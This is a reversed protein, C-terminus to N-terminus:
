HPVTTAGHERTIAHQVMDAIEKLAFECALMRAQPQDAPILEITRAVAACMATLVDSLIDEPPSYQDMRVVKKHTVRHVNLHNGGTVIAKANKRHRARYQRALM